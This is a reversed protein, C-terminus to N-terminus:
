IAKLEVYQVSLVRKILHAQSRLIPYISSSYTTSKKRYDAFYSEVGVAILRGLVEPFTILGEHSEHSCKEIVEKANVNM